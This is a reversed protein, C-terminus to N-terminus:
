AQLEFMCDKGKSATENSTPLKSNRHDLGHLPYLGLLPRGGWRPTKMTKGVRIALSDNPNVCVWRWACFECYGHIYYLIIYYLIM